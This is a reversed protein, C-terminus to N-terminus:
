LVAYHEMAYEKTLMQSNTEIRGIKVFDNVVGNTSDYKLSVTNSIPENYDEFSKAETMTIVSARPFIDNDRKEMTYIGDAYHFHNNVGDYESYFCIDGVMVESGDKYFYRCMVDAKHLHPNEAINMMQKEIKVRNNKKM